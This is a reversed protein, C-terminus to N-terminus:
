NMRIKRGLTLDKAKLGYLAELFKFDMMLNGDDDIVTKGRATKANFVAIARIKQEDPMTSIKLIHGIINSLHEKDKPNFLPYVKDKLTSYIEIGAPKKCEENTCTMSKKINYVHNCNECAHYVIRRSELAESTIKSGNRVVLIDRGDGVEDWDRDEVRGLKPDMVNGFFDMVICSTKTYNGDTYARMVRGISQDYISPNGMKRALICIEARKNNWGECLANVTILVTIEGSTFKANIENRQKPTQPPLPKGGITVLESGGTIIEASIGAAQFSKLYSVAAKTDYVFVITSKNTKHEVVKKWENVLHKTDDYSLYVPQVLRGIRILEAVSVTNITEDYWDTLREGEKNQDRYPTATTGLLRAEPYMDRIYQFIESTSKHAEDFWILYPNFKEDFELANKGKHTNRFTEPMTIVVDGHWGMEFKGFEDGFLENHVVSVRIGLGELERYTQGVLPQTNVVSLYPGFGQAMIEKIARGAIYTKGSGTASVLLISQTSHKNAILKSVMTAVAVDQFAFDEM